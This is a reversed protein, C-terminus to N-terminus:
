ASVTTMPVRWTLRTGSTNSEIGLNGGRDLARRELNAVGSRRTSQDFGRGDDSVELIVMGDRVALSITTHSAAAHKVVNVLAERAVALVDEALDNTVVLDVPGSFSVTPTSDLAPALENALDIIWHRVTNRAEDTQASLAFIITRIQSISADLNAVSQMIRDSEPGMPMGAAISQLELGTGFLQQIVHDHLDRAIRGRDELVVMRQRDGRAAELEMAVSAQGAFDAAIELAARAFRSAGALRAVLLIGRVRGSTTLPMVMTPGLSKGDALGLGLVSGDDLERPERDDAADTGLPGRLTVKRGQLFDNDVGHVTELIFEGEAEGPLMVCVLDADSLVLIRGALVDIASGNEPALLNSTFEASASAWAQRKRTESFLRANEIAIGATAALAIVLQEDEDSFGISTDRTLYLNGYVEDRVRVPVGLFAGM